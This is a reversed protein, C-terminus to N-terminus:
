QAASGHKLSFAINGPKIHMDVAIHMHSWARMFLNVRRM